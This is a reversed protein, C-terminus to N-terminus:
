LQLPRRHSADAFALNLRLYAFNLVSAFAVWAVLPITPWFAWPSVRSFLVCLTVTIVLTFLILWFGARLRQMGFFVIPWVFECALELGYFM